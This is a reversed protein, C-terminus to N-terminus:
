PANPQGFTIGMARTCGYAELAQFTLGGPTTRFLARFCRARFGFFPPSATRSGPVEDFLM